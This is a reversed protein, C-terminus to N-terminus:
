QGNKKKNYIESYIRKLREEKLWFAKDLAKNEEEKVVGEKILAEIKKRNEKIGDLMGKLRNCPMDSCYGCNDIHKQSCCEKIGFICNKVSICGYCIMEEPLLIRDRWGMRFWLEAVRTLAERDNNVTGTYRPCYSCDDGCCGIPIM